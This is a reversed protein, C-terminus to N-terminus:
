RRGARTSTRKNYEILKIAPDSKLMEFMLESSLTSEDYEILYYNMDPAIQKILKLGFKNYKDYWTDTLKDTKPQVIFENTMFADEPDIVEPNQESIGKPPSTQKWGKLKVIGEMATQVNVLAEPLDEKGFVTKSVIGNHYTIWTGPLDPILSPFKEPYSAFDCKGYAEDLQAMTKDSLQLTYEGEKDMFREANLKAIGNPYISLTYIPCRGFCAGKRIGYKVEDAPVEAIKKKTSCAAMLTSLLLVFLSYRM